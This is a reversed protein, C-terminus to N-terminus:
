SAVTHQNNLDHIFYLETPLFQQKTLPCGIAIAVEVVRRIQITKSVNSVNQQNHVDNKTGITGRISLLYRTTIRQVGEVYQCGAMEYFCCNFFFM